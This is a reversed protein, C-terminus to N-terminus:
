QPQPQLKIDGLNTDKTTKINKIEKPTYGQKEIKLTFTTNPPLGTFWFDGFIDTTTQRTEGTTEETLTIKANQICEDITPDYVAGTIFPKLLSTNVYLVRPKTKANEPKLPEAQKLLQAMDKEEGFKIAETPCADVCRPEKEGQDLLHACGTCKQAIMFAENFYVAGYPCAYLCDRCGNCKVPDILVLGDPRKYVAQAKCAAICPADDCHSCLTPVYSVKVKPYSGRETELLKFWFHGTQPQPRAYPAWDNGVHEDKCAIQCCYCGNCKALDVVFM